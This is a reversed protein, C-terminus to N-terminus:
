TQVLSTEGANGIPARSKAWAMEADINRNGAKFLSGLAAYFDPNNDRLYLLRQYNLKNPAPLTIGLSPVPTDRNAM